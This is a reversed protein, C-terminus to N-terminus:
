RQKEVLERCSMCHEAFIKVKLREINIAEECVTCIGYSGTRIQQLSRDIQNLTKTQEHIIANNTSTELAQSAFDGEDRLDSSYNQDLELTTINLNKQIKIKKAELENRFFLLEQTTLITENNYYNPDLAKTM